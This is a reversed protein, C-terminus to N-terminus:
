KAAAEERPKLIDGLVDPKSDDRVLSLNRVGGDYSLSLPVLRDGDVTLLDVKGRRPSGKLADRLADPSFLRDDIAMVKRGKVLGADDAISGPVVDTITGDPAFTLGLSRRASTGADGRRGKYTAEPADGYELRYGLRAVFGLPLEEMPKSVRDELFTRWDHAVVDNLGAVVDEFTYPDVKEPKTPGGLFARCFDDLSKAGATKERITADIEMWLLCGEQYYDQNRRLANWNPSPVRLFSSSVATDDLPRWRRGQHFTLEDITHTLTKKYDDPTVLGGRVMVVEGVYQTLGEYVWLLRTDMPQDYTTTAMGLPLRYKGCWSHVYEHPILNAVWGVRRSDDILDRERVGAICSSLHELGLYGLEDSLTVLFQFEDYHARGFLACAERVVRSYKAITAPPLELAEPSEAAVNFYAPPYPDVDLKTTKFNVGGILPSDIVDVLSAPAFRILGDVNSETKLSTAYRWDEPLRASLAVTTEAATPGEPYLICTAWNVVGVNADGYTLHGAAEVAPYNTITDLRVRLTSVGEPVKCVIRYRELDDRRWPVVSGDPAFVRLGAVPENSGCPEHTGPIWKPHWLALDAGPECPVDITAHVLKKPLERLDVEATMTPEAATTTAALTFAIAALSALSRISNM